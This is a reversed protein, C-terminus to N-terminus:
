LEDLASWALAIGVGGLLFLCTQQGDTLGHTFIGILIAGVFMSIGLVGLLFFCTAKSM